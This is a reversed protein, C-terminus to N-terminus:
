PDLHQPFCTRNFSELALHPDLHHETAAAVLAFLLQGLTQPTPNQVYSQLSKYIDLTFDPPLLNRSKLKQYIKAAAILPPFTAVYHQLKEPLSHGQEQQKITEWNQRVTHVDEVSLDGFVHPHRRILKERIGQAVDVVSFQGSEQAMQAQLVVQLLLDGLEEQIAATQGTQIAHVTEYAEEIIYPTLSQPTQALDWPCGTEPHRLQAVVDVLERYSERVPDAIYLQLPYPWNGAQETLQAPEGQFLVSEHNFLCVSTAYPCHNCIHLLSAQDPINAILAPLPPKELATFQAVSLLHLPPM